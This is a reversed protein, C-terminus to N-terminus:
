DDNNLNIVGCSCKTGDFLSSNIRFIKNCVQCIASGEFFQIAEYDELELIEKSMGFYCYIYENRLMLYKNGVSNTKFDQETIFTGIKNIDIKRKKYLTSNLMNNKLKKKYDDGYIACILEDATILYNYKNLLMQLNNMNEIFQKLNNM